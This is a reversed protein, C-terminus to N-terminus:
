QRTEIAGPKQAEIVADYQAHMNDRHQTIRDEESKIRLLTADRHKKANDLAVESQSVPADAQERQQQLIAMQSKHWASIRDKEAQLSTETM